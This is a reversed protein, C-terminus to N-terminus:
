GSLWINTPDCNLDDVWFYCGHVRSSHFVPWKYDNIPVMAADTMALEDAKAWWGAAVSLSSAGLAHAIDADVAPSNYGGFDNSGPAPSTLLPQITSRGDNGFWDPVWGPLSIDWQDAKSSTPQTLYKGYFDSQTTPVLTVKFGAAALSSQMAQAERPAPQSTSYLLKIAPGSHFGAQRLLAKAKAANGNGGNDAFPTFGTAYGVNGPIILQSTPTGLAPGGLIQIIANKDIAYAAAQRVLKNRFPGAYQNLAVYNFGSFYPGTPGIILRSDHSSMLAPINQPPPQVDWEMDGTGAQLQQQVSDTTLGETITIKNVYAKRWPDTAPNWAPNRALTFGKSASYSTIKYPGDSLTNARLQPSDPLYKLYEVPRASAFGLALINLFDPAPETLKFVLTLPGATSVGPLSATAVYHDIASVTAKVKAFGACYAAMGVITSTYYGPAGVPSQPNCLFRFERVFDASTVPRPPSTSWDVGQRLHITYTKGDASIGGNATTPITTAVDPVLKIQEPFTPAAPYTFLQRAFMRELLTSVTYYASVTDLNFIDSQGLMVLTGGRHPTSSSKGPQSTAGGSSCATAILATAAILGASARYGLSRM